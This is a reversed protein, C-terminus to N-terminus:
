LAGPTPDNPNPTRPPPDPTVVPPDPTVVPPDPTVVPPEAPPEVPPDPESPAPRGPELTGTNGPSTSGQGDGGGRRDSGGGGSGGGGTGGRATTVLPGPGEPDEVEVITLTRDRRRGPNSRRGKKDTKAVPEQDSGAAKTFAAQTEGPAPEPPLGDHVEFAAVLTVLLALVVAAGAVLERRRWPADAGSAAGTGAGTAGGGAAGGAGSSEGGQPREIASWDSGVSQAAKALTDRFLYAAPIAPAWARYSIGAESMAEIAVPCTQCDGLHADLWASDAGPELNDDQRKAILPLARECDESGAVVAAGAGLQMENRLRLRARSILQAVSNSNSDMVEAIEEYSMEEVERLALVERQREPLRENAAQVALRQSDLMASREPDEDLDPREGHLPKAEDDFDGVASTKKRRSIVDYSANRAATFIYARFNLDRDQLDPLRGLVKIFTEQTADEADHKQGVIRLCFNYIRREYADYLRAFAQGDGQAAAAAVQAEENGSPMTLLYCRNM